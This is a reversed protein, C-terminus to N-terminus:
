SECQKEFEEIAKDKSDKIELIMGEIIEKTKKDKFQIHKANLYQIWENTKGNLEKIFRELEMNQNGLYKLMRRSHYTQVISDQEDLYSM